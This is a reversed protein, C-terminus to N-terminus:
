LIFNGSISSPIRPVTQVRELGFYECVDCVVDEDQEVGGPSKSFDEMVSWVDKKVGDDMDRRCFQRDMAFSVSHVPAHFVSWRNMNYLLELTDGKM